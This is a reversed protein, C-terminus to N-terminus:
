NSEGRKNIIKKMKNKLDIPNFPDFFEVKDYGDLIEHSFATDSAIIFTNSNKAELLPMGFTEIYSAFILISKKYKKFVEERPIRGIYKINKDSIGDITFEITFKDVGEELLLEVAKLIVDNNKYIETSTPYFFTNYSVRSEKNNEFLEESIKPPIIRIKSDDVKCQEIIADKMWNTQVIVEDSIKVSQKIEYGIFHQIIALKSEKKKFFSFKKVKQFPISQHVYVSQKKRLGRICTNQLSLVETPNIKKIIKKGIFHDFLLRKIWKKYKKLIIIKINKHEPFYYENLMFIYNNGEDKKALNYYEYLISMAGGNSAAFDIVLVKKSNTSAIIKKACKKSSFHNNLYDFGIRGIKNLNKNSLTVITEIKEKFKKADNSYCKWGFKNDEIISGIDTNKDTCSLVPIAKEMYSLIRSPFNPITFRYDLFILGVDAINLLEGYEKKPLGNLLLLNNINNKNNYDELVKYETGNGCIVFYVNDMNKVEELCKIIFSIGQPKGLNGGYMFVKCSLPINYKERYKKNLSMDRINKINANISNPLIEVQFDNIYKNHELLYMKNQPSMVGITDSLEYLKKEKRRFFNYILGNKSFMKLDVANQPFIDKLMLYTKANHKKKFYQIVNSFTIPPTAYLILDFRINNFYKKIAKKFQSEILLTSIGKEIINTKQINGTKVKLLKYNEKEILTTNEKNRRETPSVIYINHNNKIFEYLLSGYITSDDLDVHSSLSLLLINM